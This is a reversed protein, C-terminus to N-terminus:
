GLNRLRSRKTRNTLETGKVMAHLTMAGDAERRAYFAAGSRM